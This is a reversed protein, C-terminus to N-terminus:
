MDVPLFLVHFESDSHLFILVNGVDCGLTEGEACSGGLAANEIYVVWKFDMSLGTLVIFCASLVVM